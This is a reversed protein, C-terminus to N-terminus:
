GPSLIEVAGSTPDGGAAIAINITDGNDPDIAELSGILEGDEKVTFNADKAVPADNSGTVTIEVVQTDTGANNARTSVDLSKGNIAGELVIESSNNGKKAVVNQKLDGNANIIDILSSVVDSIGDGDIAQYSVEVGEVSVFYNDGKDVVGSIVLKDIQKGDSAKSLSSLEVKQTDDKGINGDTVTYEFKEVVEQGVSLANFAGSPDFKIDDIEGNDLKTIKIKAGSSLTITDANSVDVGNIHSVSLRDGDIDADNSVLDLSIIEDDDATTKFDKSAVPADNDPTIEIAVTASSFSEM